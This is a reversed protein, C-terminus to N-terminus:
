LCVSRLSWCNCVLSPYTKLLNQTERLLGFVVLHCRRLSWQIGVLSQPEWCHRHNWSTSWLCGSPCTEVVVSHRCVLPIRLLKQSTERVKRLHLDSLAESSERSCAAIQLGGVAIRSISNRQPIDQAFRREFRKWWYILVCPGLLLCFNNTPWDDILM